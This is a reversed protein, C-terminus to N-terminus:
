VRCKIKAATPSERQLLQLAKALQMNSPVYFTLLSTGNGEAEELEKLVPLVKQPDSQYNTSM